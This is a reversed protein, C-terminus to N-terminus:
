SRGVAFGGEGVWFGLQSVPSTKGAVLFIAVPAPRSMEEIKVASVEEEESDEEESASQKESPSTSPQLLPSSM